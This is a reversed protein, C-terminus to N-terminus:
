EALDGLRIHAAGGRALAVAIIHCRKITLAMTAEFEQATAKRQTVREALLVVVQRNAVQGLVDIAVTALAETPAGDDFYARYQSPMVERYWVGAAIIDDATVTPAPVASM